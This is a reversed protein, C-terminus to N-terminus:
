TRPRRKKPKAKVIKPERSERFGQRFGLLYMSAGANFMCCARRFGPSTRLRDYISQASQTTETTM